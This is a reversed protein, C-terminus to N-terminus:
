GIYEISIPKIGIKKVDSDSASLRYITPTEGNFDILAGKVGMGGYFATPHSISSYANGIILQSAAEGYIGRAMVQIYLDSDSNTVMPKGLTIAGDYLMGVIAEPHTKAIAAIRKIATASFNTDFEERILKHATMAKYYETNGPKLTSSSTHSKIVEYLHGDTWTVIDNEHYENKSAWDGKYNLMRAGVEDVKASVKELENGINEKLQDQQPKSFITGNFKM